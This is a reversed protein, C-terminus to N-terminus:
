VLQLLSGLSLLLKLPLFGKKEEEGLLVINLDLKYFWDSKGLFIRTEKGPYLKNINRISRIWWFKGM